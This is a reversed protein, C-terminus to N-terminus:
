HASDILRNHLVAEGFKLLDMITSQVDGASYIISLDTKPSKIYTSGIKLYLKSKNKYEKLHEELSTNAMGAVDWINKKMYEGYSM